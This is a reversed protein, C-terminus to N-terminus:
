CIMQCKFGMEEKVWRCRQKAMPSIVIFKMQMFLGGVEFQGVLLPALKLTVKESESLVWAKSPM